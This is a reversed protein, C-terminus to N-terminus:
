LARMVRRHPLVGLRHQQRHDAQARLREHYIDCSDAATDILDKQSKTEYIVVETFRERLRSEIYDINAKIKRKGSNPNYIFICKM